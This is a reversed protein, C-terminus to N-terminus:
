LTLTAVVPNHDAGATALLAGMREEPGQAPWTGFDLVQGSVPTAGRVLVHDIRGLAAWEDTPAAYPHTPEMAGVETLADVFGAAAVIPELVTARTDTNCDGAAIAIPRDSGVAGFSDLATALQGPRREADDADLHVSMVRVRAGHRHTLGVWTAVNGDESLPCSGRHDADFESHRWLIATGNPEWPMAPTSWGSWLDRGNGVHHHDYRDGLPVLMRALEVPTVEQLCVVDADMELLRDRVLDARRERDLLAPDMASPYFEPAAWPAALVNWTAVTIDSVLPGSM